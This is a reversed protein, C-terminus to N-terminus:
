RSTRCSTLTAGGDGVARPTGDHPKTSRPSGVYRWWSMSARDGLV